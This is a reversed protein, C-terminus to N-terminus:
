SPPLQGADSQSVIERARQYVSEDITATLARGLVDIMVYASLALAVGLVASAVATLRFRLSKRRWWGATRRAGADRRWWRAARRGPAGTDTRRWGPARLGPAPRGNGADPEAEM